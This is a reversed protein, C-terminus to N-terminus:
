HSLTPRVAALIAATLRVMLVGVATVAVKLAQGGM